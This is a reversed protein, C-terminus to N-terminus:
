WATESVARYRKGLGLGASGDETEGLLLSSSSTAFGADSRM